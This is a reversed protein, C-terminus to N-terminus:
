HPAARGERLLMPNLFVNHRLAGKPGIAPARNGDVTFKLGGASETMLMLGPRDPVRYVDGPLLVGDFLVEGGTSHIRIRTTDVATFAVRARGPTGYVVTPRDTVNSRTEPQKEAKKEPEKAKEVVAPPVAAQQAPPATTPQASPNDEASTPPPPAQQPSPNAETPAPAVAAQQAPPNPDAPPPAADQRL